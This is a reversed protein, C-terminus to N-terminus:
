AAEGGVVLRVELRRKAEQEELAALQQDLAAYEEREADTWGGNRMIARLELWRRVTKTM